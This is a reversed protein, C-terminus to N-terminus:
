NFRQMSLMESQMTLKMGLTTHDPLHMFLPGFSAAAEHSRHVHVKIGPDLALIIVM